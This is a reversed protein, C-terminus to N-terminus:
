NDIEKLCNVTARILITHKLHTRIKTVDNWLLLSTDKDVEGEDLIENCNECYVAIRM